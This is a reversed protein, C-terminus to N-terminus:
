QSSSGQPSALVAAEQQVEDLGRCGRWHARLAPQAFGLGGDENKGLGEVLARWPGPEEAVLNGYWDGSTMVLANGAYRHGGVHSSPWVRIEEEEEEEEEEEAGKTAAAAAAAARLAEVLPPGCSACRADRSAHACVLVDHGTLPQVKVDGGLHGGSTLAATYDEETALVRVLAPVDARRLGRVALGRRRPAGFVLVSHREPYSAAPDEEPGDGPGAWPHGLAEVVTVKFTYQRSGGQSQEGEAASASALMKKAQVYHAVQFFGSEELHTPWATHGRVPDLVVIHRDYKKVSGALPATPDAAMGKARRRLLQRRQAAAVAAAVAASASSSAARTNHRTAPIPLFASRTATATATATAARTPTPQRFLLALLLVAM